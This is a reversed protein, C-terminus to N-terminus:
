AQAGSNQMSQAAQAIRYMVDGVTENSIGNNVGNSFLYQISRIIGWPIGWWGSFATILQCTLKANRADEGDLASGLYMGSAKGTTLVLVSYCYRYRVIPTRSDIAAGNYDLTAGGSLVEFNEAIFSVLMRDSDEQKKDFIMAMVPGTLILALFILVFAISEM